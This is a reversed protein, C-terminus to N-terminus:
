KAIEWYVLTGDYPVPLTEYRGEGPCAYVDNAIIVLKSMGGQGSRFRNYIALIGKGRNSAGSHTPVDIRGELWDRLLEANSKSGLKWRLRHWVGKVMISKFIGIGSDVMTFSAKDSNHSCYVNAWWSTVGPAFKNSHEHTNAMCEILTLYSSRRNESYGLMRETAFRIMNDATEPDVKVSTRRRIRGAAPAEKLQRSRAFDYFGCQDLLTRPLEARPESGGIQAGQIFSEDDMKSLMALVADSTLEEVDELDIQVQKSASCAKRLRSFFQVAEVPAKTLSFVRPVTVRSVLTSLRRM